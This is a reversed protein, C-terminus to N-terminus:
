DDVRFLVNLTHIVYAIGWGAAPYFVWDFGGGTFWDIVALGGIVSLYSTTHAKWENIAKQRDRRQEESRAVEAARTEEAAREAAAEAAEREAQQDLARQLAEKSIGLEAAVQRVDHEDLGEGEARMQDLRTATEILEGVEERSFRRREEQEEM